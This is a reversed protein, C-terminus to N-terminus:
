KLLPLALAECSKYTFSGATYLLGDHTFTLHAFHEKLDLGLEGELFAKLYKMQERESMGLPIEGKKVREPYTFLIEELLKHTKADNALFGSNGQPNTEILRVSGDKLVVVDMAFTMGQLEKPLRDVLDQAYAEVRPINKDTQWYDEPLVNGNDIYYYRPVTSERGLVKGAVVEM